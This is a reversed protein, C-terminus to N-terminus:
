VLFVLVRKDSAGSDFWLVLFASTVQAVILGHFWSRM